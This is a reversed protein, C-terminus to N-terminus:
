KIENQSKKGMPSKSDDNEIQHCREFYDVFDWSIFVNIMKIVYFSDLRMSTNM